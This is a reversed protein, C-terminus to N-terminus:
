LSRQPVACGWEDYCYSSSLIPLWIADCHKVQEQLPMSTTTSGGRAKGSTGLSFSNVPSRFDSSGQLESCMGTIKCCLLFYATLWMAWDLGELTKLDYNMHQAATDLVAISLCSWLPPPLWSLTGGPPSACDFVLIQGEFSIISETWPNGHWTIQRSWNISISPKQDKCFLHGAALDYWTIM